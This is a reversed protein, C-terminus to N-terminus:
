HCKAKPPRNNYVGKLVRKIIPHSGISPVGPIQILGSLTSRATAVVNYKAGSTYLATLFIAVDILYPNTPDIKGQIFYQEWKGFSSNYQARTGQRWSDHIFAATAPPLTFKEIAKRICSSGVAKPAQVSPTNGSFQSTASFEKQTSTHDVPRDNGVEDAFSVMVSNDLPPPPPAILIGEAQNQCIKSLTRGLLSFPPFAYCKLTNWNLSFADVAWSEPEPQWSVYTKLQSNLRSAFLDLHPQFLNFIKGFITEELTWETNDKFNRSEAIANESGPIHAASM